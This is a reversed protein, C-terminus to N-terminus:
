QLGGHRGKRGDEANEGIVPASEELMADRRDFSAAGIRADQDEIIVAIVAFRDPDQIFQAYTMLYAYRLSRIIEGVLATSQVGVHLAGELAQRGVSQGAEYLVVHLQDTPEVFFVQSRKLAKKGCIRIGSKQLRCQHPGRVAVAILADRGIVRVHAHVETRVVSLASADKERGHRNQM